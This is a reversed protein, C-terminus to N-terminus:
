AVVGALVVLLFITFCGEVAGIIAFLRELESDRVRRLRGRVCLLANGLQCALDLRQLVANRRKVFGHHRCSLLSLLLMPFVGIQHDRVCSSNFENTECLVAHVFEVVVSGM